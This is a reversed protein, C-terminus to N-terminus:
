VSQSHFYPVVERGFLALCQLVQDWRPGKPLRFRLVIEDVDYERAYMEIQRICEEPSGLIFHRSARELTFDSESQFEPHHTLIGWRFYFLWEEVALRGFVEEAEARTPAVWGDRMLVVKSPRGAARAAERYLRVQELWVQRDLPFPDSCWADGIRGARAITKPFMGGVWWEPMPKQYPKPTLMVEDFQYYRGRYSFREETWALKIIEVQEEFRAGREHHPVGFMRSYGSHYGAAVGFIVRGRSIHDIMAVQEAVHIPHHLPLVLIYSGLRIRSTRAAIVSLLVLSSPFFCETRGHREPVVISDFGVEEALEIERYLQDIFAGVEERTPISRNYPGAHTDLLYHLRM